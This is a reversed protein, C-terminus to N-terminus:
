FFPFFFFFLCTILFHEGTEEQEGCLQCPGANGGAKRIGAGELDLDDIRIKTLIQQGPFTTKLYGRLTLKSELAYTRQLRDSAEVKTKWEKTASSHIWSKIEQKSKFDEVTRKDNGVETLFSEVLKFIGLKPSANQGENALAWLLSGKPASLMQKAVLLQRMRERWVDRLEGLEGLVGQKASYKSVGLIERLTNMQFAELKKAVVTHGRTQSSAVARGYDITPWLMARAVDLSCGPTNLGGFLGARRLEHKTLMGAMLKITFHKNWSGTSDFTVGLSKIEKVSDIWNAGFRWQAPPHPANVCFVRFKSIAWEQSWKNGYELLTDLTNSVAEHNEHPIMSDDLYTTCTLSVEGVKAGAGAAKLQDPLDSGFYCFLNGSRPGGQPLGQKSFVIPGQFDAEHIQAPMQAYLARARKVDTLSTKEDDALKAWLAKMWVNDYAGKVDAVIIYLPMGQRADIVLSLVAATTEASIGQKNAFHEPAVLNPDPGISPFFPNLVCKEVLKLGPIVFM